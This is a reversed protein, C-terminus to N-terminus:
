YSVYSTVDQAVAMPLFGEAIAKGAQPPWVIAKQPGYGLGPPGQSGTCRNSWHVFTLIGKEGNCMHSITYQTQQVSFCAM